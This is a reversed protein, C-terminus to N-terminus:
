LKITLTYMFYFPLVYFLQPDYCCLDKNILFFLELQYKELNFSVNVAM